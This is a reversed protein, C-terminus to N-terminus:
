AIEANRKGDNRRNKAVLYVGGLVAAVAPLIRWSLQEGLFIGAGIAAFVPQLFVFVGVTSAPVDRLATANLVYSLATPGLIIFM